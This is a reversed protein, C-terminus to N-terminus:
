VKALRWVACEGGPISVHLRGARPEAEPSLHKVEAVQIGSVLSVDYRGGTRALPTLVVWRERDDVPHETIMLDRDNRQLWRRECAKGSFVQYLRELGQQEFGGAQDALETEAAVDLYYVTGRGFPKRTLLPLEEDDVALVEADLVYFRHGLMDTGGLTLPEGSIDAWRLVADRVRPARAKPRLGTLSEFDRLYAGGSSIFLTAGEEVRTMLTEWDKSNIDGQGQLSPAIYLPVEPWKEPEAMRRFTVDIGAQKALTWCGISRAWGGPSDPLLGVADIQRPPLEGLNIKELWQGFDQLTAAMAKPKREATFLGLTEELPLRDYPSFPLSLDFGCWWLLGLEGNAWLLRLASALYAAAVDEDGYMPGLTGFEECLNPKGALDGYFRGEAAAHSFSRRSGLPDKGAYPTFLPYPHTTMIDVSEGHDQILWRTVDGGQVELVHLGSVIQRTPDARRIASAITHTWLWAAEPSAVTGMCNCENGLDWLRIAPHDAMREVIEEVYRVQWRLSVADELISRDQLAAPVFRQGSMWGTVLALIIQVDYEAALDCFRRLREMMLEDLGARGPGSSPIRRGKSLMGLREGYIDWVQELPQFDPWFPFVRLTRIRHSALAELDLRVSAEDWHRWMFMGAHSAWYNCGILFENSM